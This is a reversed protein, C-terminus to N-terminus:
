NNNESKARKIKWKITKILDKMDKAYTVDDLKKLLNHIKILSELEQKYDM